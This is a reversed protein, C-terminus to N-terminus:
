TNSIAYWTSPRLVHAAMLDIYFKDALRILAMALNKHSHYQDWDREAAFGRLRVKAEELTNM